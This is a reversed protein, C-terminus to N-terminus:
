ILFWINFISLLCISTCSISPYVTGLNGIGISSISICCIEDYFTSLYGDYFIWIGHILNQIIRIGLLCSCIRYFDLIEIVIIIIVVVVIRARKRILQVVHLSLIIPAQGGLHSLQFSFLSDLRVVKVLQNFHGVLLHFVDM